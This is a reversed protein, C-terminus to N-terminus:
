SSKVVEKLIAIIKPLNDIFYEPVDMSVLDGALRLFKWAAGTSV